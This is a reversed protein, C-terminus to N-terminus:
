SSENEKEVGTPNVKVEFGHAPTRELVACRLWRCRSCWGVTYKKGVAGVRVIGAASADREGGCTLCRIRWKGEDM